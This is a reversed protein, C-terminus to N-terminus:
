DSFTTQLKIKKELFFAKNLSFVLNRFVKRTRFHGLLCRAPEGAAFMYPTLGAM